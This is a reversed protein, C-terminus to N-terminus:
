GGITQGGPSLLLNAGAVEWWSFLDARVAIFVCFSNTSIGYCIDTGDLINEVKLVV